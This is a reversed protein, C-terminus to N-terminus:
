GGTTTKHPQSIKLVDLFKDVMPKEWQFMSKEMRVKVGVKWKSM